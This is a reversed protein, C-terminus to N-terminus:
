RLNVSRESRSRTERTVTWGDARFCGAPVAESALARRRADRTEHIVSWGAESVRRKVEGVHIADAELEQRLRQDLATASLQNTLRELEADSYARKVAAVAQAATTGDYVASVNPISASWSGAHRVEVLIEVPRNAM